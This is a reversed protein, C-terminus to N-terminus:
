EEEEEEKGGGEGREGRRGGGGGDIKCEISLDNRHSDGHTNIINVASYNTMLSDTEETRWAVNALSNREM